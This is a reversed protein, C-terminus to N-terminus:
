RENVISVSLIKGTDGELLYSNKKEPDNSDYEILWYYKGHDFEANIISTGKTIGSVLQTSIPINHENCFKLVKKYNYKFHKDNDIVKILDGKEGYIYSKGILFGLRSFIGKSELMGNSKFQRSIGILPNLSFDSSFVINGNGGYARILQEGFENYEVYDYWTSVINIKNDGRFITRKVTDGPTTFFYPHDSMKEHSRDIRPIILAVTK